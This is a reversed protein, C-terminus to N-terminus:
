RERQVAGAGEPSVSASLATWCSLTRSLAATHEPALRTEYRRASHGVGLLPVHASLQAGPPDISQRDALAVPQPWERQLGARGCRRCVWVGRFRDAGFISCWRLARVPRM